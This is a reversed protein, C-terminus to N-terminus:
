RPVGAANVSAMLVAADTNLAGCTVRPSETRAAPSYTLQAKLRASQMVGLADEAQLIIESNSELEAQRAEDPLIVLANEPKRVDLRRLAGIYDKVSKAYDARAAPTRYSKM